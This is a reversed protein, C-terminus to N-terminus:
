LWATFSPRQQKGHTMPTAAPSKTTGVELREQIQQGFCHSANMGALARSLL